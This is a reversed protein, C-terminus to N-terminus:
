RAAPKKTLTGSRAFDQRRERRSVFMEDFMVQIIAAAPIAMLAGVIGLLAAGTMFAIFVALPSIHVKRAMVRPAVFFNEMKQFILAMALVSWFQWRSHLLAIVLAPTTGVIPGIVPVMEGCAALLALPLAYPVRLAILGFFSAVGMIGSLILQGSLWSSMRSGMRTLTQRKAARQEAPYFLLALNRLKEADTLIYFMMFLVAVASVIVEVTSRVYLFITSKPVAGTGGFVVQRVQDMPFYRELPTLINTEILQPLQAGLARSEVILRPVALVGVVGLALVFPFYVALVATGRNIRRHFFLRSYIQVRRVAPAIGAALVAAIFVLLLVSRVSWLVAAVIVLAAVLLLKRAFLELEDSEQRPYFAM